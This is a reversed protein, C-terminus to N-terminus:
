RRQTWPKSRPWKAATLRLSGVCKPVAVQRAGDARIPLGNEWQRRSSQNKKVKRAAFKVNTAMAAVTGGVHLSGRGPGRVADPEIEEELRLERRVREDQRAFRQADGVLVCAVPIKFPAEDRLITLGDPGAVPHPKGGIAPEVVHRLCIDVEEELAVQRRLQVRLPEEPDDSLGRPIARQDATDVGAHERQRLGAGNRGPSPHLHHQVPLRRWAKM